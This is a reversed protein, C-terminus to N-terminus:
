ERHDARSLNVEHKARIIKLPDLGLRSCMFFAYIMVDALEEAAHAAEEEDLPDRVEHWTFIDMLEAAEVNLAMALNKLRHADGWSPHVEDRLYELDRMMQAIEPVSNGDIHLQAGNHEPDLKHVKGNM